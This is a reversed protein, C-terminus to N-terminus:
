FCEKFFKEIDNKLSQDHKLNNNNEQDPIQNIIKCLFYATM